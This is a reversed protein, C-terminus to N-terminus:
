LHNRSIQTVTGSTRADRLLYLRRIIAGPLGVTRRRRSATSSRPIQSLLSLLPSATAAASFHDGELVLLYSRALVPWPLDLSQEVVVLDGPGLVREKERV